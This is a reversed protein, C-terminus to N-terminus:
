EVSNKCVNRWRRRLGCRHVCPEGRLTVRLTFIVGSRSIHLRFVDYVTEPRVVGVSVGLPGFILYRRRGVSSLDIQLFAAASIAHPRRRPQCSVLGATSM